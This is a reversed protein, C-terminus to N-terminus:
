KNLCYFVYTEVFPDPDEIDKKGLLERQKKRWKHVVYAVKQKDNKSIYLINKMHKKWDKRRKEDSRLDDIDLTPREMVESEM